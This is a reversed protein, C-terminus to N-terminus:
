IITNNKDLLTNNGAQMACTNGNHSTLSSNGEWVAVSLRGRGEVTQKQWYNRQGSGWLGKRRPCLGGIKNM